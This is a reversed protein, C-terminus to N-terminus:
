SGDLVDNGISDRSVDDLAANVFAATDHSGQSRQKTQLIGVTVDPKIVREFPHRLGRLLFKGLKLSRSEFQPVLTRPAIRRKLDYPRSHESGAVIGALDM